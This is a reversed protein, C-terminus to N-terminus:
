FSCRFKFIEDELGVGIFLSLIEFDGVCIRCSCCFIYDCEINLMRKEKKKNKIMNRELLM